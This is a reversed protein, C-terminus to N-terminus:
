APARFSPREVRVLIVTINDKGGRENAATILAAVARDADAEEKLIREIQEDPIMKSLGDSCLLYRDGPRPKGLILDIVVTPTVGLARTLAQALPGVIGLSAATHDSTIRHLQGERFVYCRSDGVHGVYVRQKNPSFRACVLTTGMGHLDRDEQSAKFIRQNARQITQALAGARRSLGPYASTDFDDAAFAQEFTEVAMASAVDGGAYGGMGDAVVFLPPDDLVLYADENRRRRKGPDTQGVASLLIYAFQGTPEEVAAEEDYVIPVVSSEYRETAEEEDDEHAVPLVTVKTIDLDEDEEFHIRPLSPAAARPKAAQPEPERKTPKPKPKAPKTAPRSAPRPAPKREPPKQRPSTFLMRVVLITCVLAVGGLVLSLITNTV